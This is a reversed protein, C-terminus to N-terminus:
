TAMAVASFDWSAMAVGSPMGPKGSGAIAGAPRSDPRRVHASGYIFHLIMHRDMAVVHWPEFHTLRRPKTEPHTALHRNIGEAYAAALNQLEPTLRPFDEQSRRVIEFSRNLIDSSLEAEGAVEAHARHVPPM